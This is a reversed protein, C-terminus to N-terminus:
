RTTHELTAQVGIIPPEHLHKGKGAVLIVSQGANSFSANAHISWNPV